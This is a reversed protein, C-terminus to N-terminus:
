QIPIFSSGAMVQRRVKGSHSGPVSPTAAEIPAPFLYFGGFGAIVFAVGRSNPVGANEERLVFSPPKPRRKEEGCLAQGGTDIADPVRPRMRLGLVLTLRPSAM